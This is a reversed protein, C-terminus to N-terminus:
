RAGDGDAGKWLELAGAADDLQPCYAGRLDALTWTVRLLRPLGDATVLGTNVASRLLEAAEPAVPFRTVADIHRRYFAEFAM